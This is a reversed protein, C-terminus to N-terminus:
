LQRTGSHQWRKARGSSFEEFDGPVRRDHLNNYWAFRPPAMQPANLDEPWDAIAVAPVVANNDQDLEVMQTLSVLGYYLGLEACATISM